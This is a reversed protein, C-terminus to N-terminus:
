FRSSLFPFLLFRVLYKGRGFRPKQLDAVVMICNQLEEMWFRRAHELSPHTTMTRSKLKLDINFPQVM